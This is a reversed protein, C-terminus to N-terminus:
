DEDPLLGATEEKWMRAHQDMVHVSSIDSCERLLDAITKQTPPHLMQPAIECAPVLVFRREHMRPHPITLEESEVTDNGFLLIDIDIEREHWRPRHLRGCEREVEHLARRLDHGNLTTCGTVCINVFSPQETYGVPETEYLSSVKTVDFGARLPLAHVAKLLTLVTEGINAGFSLLVPTAVM